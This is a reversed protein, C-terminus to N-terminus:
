RKVWVGLITKGLSYGIRRDLRSSVPILRRDWFEIQRTTPLRQRLFLVNASSTILGVSDLYILSRVELSSPVIARLTRRSYRRYHGISQDFPSFLWQHAPALVILAGGPRLLEVAQELEGRDDQIHELVDVYLITDFAEEKPLSALTGHRVEVVSRYEDNKLHHILRRLLSEDPELCVWRRQRNSCLLETNAGIGAGVELVESGLYRSVLGAWYTKWRKALYFVDLENGAYTYGSNM